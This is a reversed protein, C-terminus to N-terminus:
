RPMHLGFSASEALVRQIIEPSVSRAQADDVTVPIGFEFFFREFGKPRWGTVWVADEDGNNVFSHLTGPPLEVFGGPRLTQWAGDVMVDLTGKMVMFFEREEKHFHPPPGPVKPPSIIELLTYSDDTQWPRIKHGLVWLAHIAQM